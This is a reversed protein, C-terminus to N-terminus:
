QQAAPDVAQGNVTINASGYVPDKGDFTCQDDYTLTVGLGDGQNAYAYLAPFHSGYKGGLHLRTNTLKVNTPYQYANPSKNGITLAAVNVMNGSGWDRNAFYNVIKAYDDDNYELTIDCDNIEATAGRIVVGQTTGTVTCGKMTLKVPVNLLIPSDGTFTSNELLITGNYSTSANTTVAYAKVAFTSNKITVKTNEPAVFVASANTEFSVGEMTLEGGTRVDIVSNAVEPRNGIIKGNNITVASTVNVPSALTLTTEKKSFNLTTPQTIKIEGQTEPCKSLDYNRWITVKGGAKIQEVLRKVEIWRDKAVGDVVIKPTYPFSGTNYDGAWWGMYDDKRDSVPIGTVQEVKNNSLTITYNNYADENKSFNAVTGIFAHSCSQELAHVRDEVDQAPTYMGTFSIGSVSNGEITVNRDGTQLYGILGGAQSIDNGQFANMECTAVSCNRIVIPNSHFSIFGVLGAVKQESNVTAYKVHCNEVTGYDMRGVLAGGRFCTVTAKYITLDKVTGNLVYFFGGYYYGPGDKQGTYNDVYLNTIEHGGGDFVFDKMGETDMPTWKSNVGNLDIDNKLIIKKCKKTTNVLEGAKMLEEATSVAYATIYCGEALTIDGTVKGYIEVNGQKVDLKGVEVGEPIILTNAATTATVSSYKTGNLTVTSSPLNIVLDNTNPATIAVAKPAQNNAGEGTTTSESITVKNSTTEPLQISITTQNDQAFIKPISITADATPATTVIVETAGNKIADEVKDVTAVQKTTVEVNHDDGAYIPSIEVNFKGEATLLSGYINTRYNWQAPVNTVAVDNVGEISLSVSNLTAKAQGDNETTGKAPVLFYTTGLYNYDKATPTGISVTESSAPIKAAAFTVEAETFDGVTNTFPDLTTAANSIKITSTTNEGIELGAAKAKDIDDTLFNLQAFPRKLTVKEEFSGEVKKSKVVGLFADRSEDNATANKYSVKISKLNTVDYPSTTADSGQAQAWFVFSYTKGKVLNFSVSTSLSENEFTATKRLETLEQGETGDENVEFVGAVLNKATKGNSIAKTQMGGSLEVNFSVLAENGNGRSLEDENSCATSLLLGVAAMLSYFCRKM